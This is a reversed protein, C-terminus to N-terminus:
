SIEKLMAVENCEPFKICCVCENWIKHPLQSKEIQKFNFKKFFEPKETLLFIKKIKLQGAENICFDILKHGIGQGQKSEHVVLSRVEALNQWTIHLACCGYLAGKEEFVVFDRLNEYIENLSRPLVQGLKAVTNILEQIRIVDEINAKRVTNTM